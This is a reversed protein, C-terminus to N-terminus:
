GSFERKSNVEYRIGTMESGLYDDDLLRLIAWRDSVDFVIVEAGNDTRVDIDLQFKEITRKLDNMTIESLYPKQAINKLKELKQLHSFCSERFEGFNAIPVHEEITALSQEAVERLMEYYRFIHQFNAKNLIILHNGFLIADLNSDFQFTPESLRDYQEGILKMVINKSRLLEKNRNYRRFLVARSNSGSLILAYFRLQDVFDDLDGLLAIQAPSPVSRLMTGIVDDQLSLFEVEHQEPKYDASYELLRIDGTESLRAIKKVREIAMHSFDTAVEETINLSRYSPTEDDDGYIALAITVSCDANRIFSIAQDFEQNTM